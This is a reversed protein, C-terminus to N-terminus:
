MTKFRYATIKEMSRLKFFFKSYDDESVTVMADSTGYKLLSNNTFVLQSKLKLRNRV